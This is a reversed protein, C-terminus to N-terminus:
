RGSTVCLTTSRIKKIDSRGEAILNPAIRIDTIPARFLVGYFDTEIRRSLRTWRMPM